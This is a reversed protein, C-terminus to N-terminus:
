RISAYRVHFISYILLLKRSVEQYCSFYLREELRITKLDHYTRTSIFNEKFFFRRTNNRIAIRSSSLGILFILDAFRHM